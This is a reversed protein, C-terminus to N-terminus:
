GSTTMYLKHKELFTNFNTPTIKFYFGNTHISVIEDIAKLIAQTEDKISLESSSVVIRALYSCTNHGNLLDHAFWEDYHTWPNYPNDITTLMCEEDITNNDM